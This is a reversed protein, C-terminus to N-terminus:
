VYRVSWKASRSCTSKRTRRSKRKTLYSRKTCGGYLVKKNKGGSITCGSGSCENLKEISAKIAKVQKREIEEIREKYREKFPVFVKQRKTHPKSESRDLFPLVLKIEEDTPTHGNLSAYM